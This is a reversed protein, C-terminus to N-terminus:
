LILNAVVASLLNALTAACVARLGLQTIWVRRSPVLTGIAGIQIGICSINSFGCLAYTLIDVAREPLNMNVLQGYAIVENLAVKTGILQGAKLADPGTLGLLYGFPSFLYSLLLEISLLIQYGSVMALIDSIKSLGMNCLSMLSIFSILMAGIALALQLGDQTGQAIADLANASKTDVHTAVSRGSASIETEPCIIKAVVISAPISMVCSALLHRIPVGMAAFVVLIAGSITAMGSVMVVFLESRTMGPLYQKVLLPAGTQDLFSNAIACLTEAGSTGLFPQIILNLGGVIRQIIGFYFLLNMCAGFFILVPLVQIAFVFGWATQASALNGFVFEIGTQAAHYLSAVGGSVFGVVRMGITTRLMVLAFVGHLVLGRGVLTWSIKKRDLSLLYALLMIIPIAILSAYRNYTLFYEFM